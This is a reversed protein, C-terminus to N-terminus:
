GGMAEGQYMLKAPLGSADLEIKISNGQKDSIELANDGTAVVTRGPDRDSLALGFLERFVEGQVQKIVAAPLNQVGQPTAIWGSEGQFFVSHKGFPLVVDQRMTSPKIFSNHQTAK